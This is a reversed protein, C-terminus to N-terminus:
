LRTGNEILCSRYERGRQWKEVREPGGQEWPRQALRRREIHLRKKGLGPTIKGARVVDM